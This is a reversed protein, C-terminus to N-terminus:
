QVSVSVGSQSSAGGVSVQLPLNGSLANAPIQVNLQMVGSVLAPAEGYFLVSAPQGNILVAVSLLPQPTLPPTASVTTVKGTVGPPSTQGEGTMFLVVTSGKPAPNNPSNYSLDQNFAAAPGSGSGNATFIAPSSVVSNLPFPSSTQGQFSVQAYPNLLGQVGYPVVCNIQTASVYTLPAPTGSFLVQVGALSTAVKGTQDLTLTAPTTPGIDGGSITVIEGPSIAGGLFSAANVVSNITLTEDTLQILFASETTSQPSGQFANASIVNGVSCSPECLGVIWLSQPAALASGSAGFAISGFASTSFSGVLALTPMSLEIVGAPNVGFSVHVSQPVNGIEVQTWAANLALYSFSDLTTRGPTLKAIFNSSPTSLYAGPTAQITTTDTSGSFYLSGDSAVALSTVTTDSYQPGFFTGYLLQSGAPNVEVIFGTQAGNSLQGQFANATTVVNVANQATFSAVYTNGQQDIAVSTTKSGNFGGGGLYAGFVLGTGTSNLRLLYVGSDEAYIPNAGTGLAGATIVTPLFAGVIYAEGANNLAIANPTGPLYTSYLLTHGDPSIKAAFGGSPIHLYAGPTVPFASSRTTGIVYISGASDTTLATPEDLDDGGLFTAWLLTAGTPDFKAIFVDRNNPFGTAKVPQFVQATGPLTQSTTYGALVVNGSPDAAVAVAANTDGTGGFYTGYTPVPTGATALAPWVAFLAAIFTLRILATTRFPCENEQHTFLALM